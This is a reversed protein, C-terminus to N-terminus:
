PVVGRDLGVLDVIDASQPGIQTSMTVDAESALASTRTITEQSLRARLANLRM